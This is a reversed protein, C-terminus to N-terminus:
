ICNYAAFLCTKVIVVNEVIIVVYIIVKIDCSM